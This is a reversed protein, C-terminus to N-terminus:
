KLVLVKETDVKPVMCGGNKALVARAEQNSCPYRDLQTLIAVWCTRSITQNGPKCM